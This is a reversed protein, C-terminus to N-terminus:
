RETPLQGIGQVSAQAAQEAELCLRGYKAAPKDHAKRADSCNKSLFQVDYQIRRFVGKQSRSLRQLPTAVDTSISEALELSQEGRNRFNVMVAEVASQMTSSERGLQVQDPLGVLSQGYKRELEARSQLM